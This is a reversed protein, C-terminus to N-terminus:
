PRDRTPQAAVDRAAVAARDHEDRAEAAAVVRQGREGAPQPPEAVTRRDAAEDEVGVARLPRELAHLPADGGEVRPRAAAHRDDAVAAAPVERARHRRAPGLEHRVGDREARVQLPHEM